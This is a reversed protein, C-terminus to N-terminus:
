IYIIQIIYNILNVYLLEQYNEKQTIAAMECILIDHSGGHSVMKVRCDISALAGDLALAGTMM